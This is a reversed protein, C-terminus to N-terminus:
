NNQLGSILFLDYKSSNIETDMNHYICTLTQLAQYYSIGEFVLYRIDQRWAQFTSFISEVGSINASDHQHKMFSSIFLMEKCQYAHKRYDRKLM